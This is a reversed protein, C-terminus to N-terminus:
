RIQDITTLIHDINCHNYNKVMNPWFHVSLWKKGNKALLPIIINKVKNPDEYLMIVIQTMYNLESVANVYDMARQWQEERLAQLYCYYLLSSLLSM